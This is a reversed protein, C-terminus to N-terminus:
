ASLDGTLYWEDTGRKVLAAFSYQSSLKLRNGASRITVGAGPVITTQGAGYQALDIRDRIEFAASSNPPVTLTNPGSLNTEILCFRDTLVLTHNTTKTLLGMHKAYEAQLDESDFLKVEGANNVGLLKNNGAAVTGALYTSAQAM